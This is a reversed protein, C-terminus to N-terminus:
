FKLNCANHIRSFVLLVKDFSLKIKNAKKLNTPKNSQLSTTTSLTNEKDSENKFPGLALTNVKNLALREAQQLANRYKSM